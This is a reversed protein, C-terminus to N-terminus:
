VWVAEKELYQDICCSGIIEDNLKWYQDPIYKGCEDCFVADPRDEPAMNWYGQNRCKGCCDCEYGFNLRCIM